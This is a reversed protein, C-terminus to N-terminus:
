VARESVLRSDRVASQLQTAYAIDCALAEGECDKLSTYYGLDGHPLKCRERLGMAPPSSAIKGM